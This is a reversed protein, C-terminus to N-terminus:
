STPIPLWPAPSRSCSSRDWASIAAGSLLRRRTGGDDDLQAGVALDTVGDGDLDGLASVSVGFMDGGLVGTFNGAIDSIKQHGKVTGDVNLFLVWVAGRNTGGDDDSPVGVALDPVADGDLDGLGSVSAGFNDGDDLEGTFNGQAGCILQSLADGSASLVVCPTASLLTLGALVRNVLRRGRM